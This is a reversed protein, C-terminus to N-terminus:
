YFTMVAFPVEKKLSDLDLGFGVKAFSDLTFRFFLNQIDVVTGQSAANDLLRFLDVRGDSFVTEMYDNFAKAYFIKSSIKRQQKWSEGDSNFIGQGLLEHLRDHFYQGKIYNHFNTKMVHELSSPKSIVIYPALLPLSFVYEKSQHAKVDNLFLELIRHDYFARITELIVGLMPLTYISRPVDSSYKIRTGFGDNRYYFLILIAAAFVILIMKLILLAIM